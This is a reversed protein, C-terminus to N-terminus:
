FYIGQYGSCGYGLNPIGSFTNKFTMTANPTSSNGTKSAIVNYSAAQVYPSSKWIPPSTVSQKTFHILLLIIITPFPILKQINKM